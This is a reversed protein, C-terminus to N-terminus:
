AAGGFYDDFLKGTVRRVEPTTLSAQPSARIATAFALMNRKFQAHRVDGIYGVPDGDSLFSAMAGFGRAANRLKQASEPSNREMAYAYVLCAIEMRGAHFRQEDMKIRRAVLASKRLLHRLETAAPMKNNVANEGLWEANDALIKAMDPEIMKPDAAKPLDIVALDSNGGYVRVLGLQSLSILISDDPALPVVYTQAGASIDDAPDHIPQVEVWHGRYLVVPTFVAIAPAFSTEYVSLLRGNLHNREVVAAADRADNWDEALPFKLGADWSAEAVLSPIGLPFFTALGVLTSAFAIRLGRAGIRAMMDALFLGAIVSGALTSQAVFRNPDQILWSLPAGAWALLFKHRMPDRLLWVLGAIALLDTLLDLRMAEHGHVGRYWGLNTIFHISYPSTLIATAVGVIFLACWRRELIAAILIGLPVTLFGGIHVYCAASTVLTALVLRNELFFYIAWPISIFLWGSPIGVYFSGAAFASGALLAVAFMAAIDNGLRRAFYVVTLMAATWQAVGLIANALIFSDPANGLIRGLLAIAVHLAPGQLNPRGGPGFNIHDWWASGHAAYWRALSIHYGSDISVRYDSLSVVLLVANVGIIAWTVIRASRNEQRDIKSFIALRM